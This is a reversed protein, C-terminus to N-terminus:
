CLVGKPSVRRLANTKQNVAIEIEHMEIKVMESTTTATATRGRSESATTFSHLRFSTSFCPKPKCLGLVFARRNASRLANQKEDLKM